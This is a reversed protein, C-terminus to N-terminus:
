NTSFKSGKGAINVPKGNSAALDSIWFFFFFWRLTFNKVYYISCYIWNEVRCLLSFQIDALKSVRNLKDHRTKREQMIQWTRHEAYYLIDVTQQVTEGLLLLHFNQLKSASFWWLAASIWQLCHSGNWYHHQVRGLDCNAVHKTPEVNQLNVKLITWKM